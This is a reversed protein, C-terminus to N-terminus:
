LLVTKLVDILAELKIPKTIYNDMGARYCEERDEVMANATMAVILPQKTHHKRIHRTAELGDMEPLQIDMLILDYYEQELMKIAEIGTEALVPTYGLRGLIKLIVLQNVKNDEAVMIKLPHSVSFDVSLLNEPKQESEMEQQQLV